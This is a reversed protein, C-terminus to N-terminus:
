CWTAESGGAGKTLPELLVVGVAGFQDNAEELDMRGIPAHPIGLGEILREAEAPDVANPPAQVIHAETDAERRALRPADPTADVDLAHFGQDSRACASPCAPPTRAARTV